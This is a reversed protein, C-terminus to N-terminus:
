KNNFNSNCHWGLLSMVHVMCGKYNECRMYTSVCQKVGEDHLLLDDIEPVSSFSITPGLPAQACKM